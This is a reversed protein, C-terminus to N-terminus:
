VQSMPMLMFSEVEGDENTPTFDDPLKLDYCFLVDRELRYGDIDLYSLAGVPVARSSISLPIGAEEKCEKVLNERCSIGHPLGGAVLHDLKGPYTTKAHSRKAVWMLKEDGREVYGNMHIAYARIGFYPAAARELSLYAPAGFSSSVPYLENRIGPILEGSLSSIVEGVAETRESPARLLPHLTLYYGFNSEWLHDIPFTFVDEYKKLHEAF